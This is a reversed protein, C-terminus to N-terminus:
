VKINTVAKILFFAVATGIVFIILLLLGVGRFLPDIFGENMSNMMLVIVIPMVPILVSVYRQEATLTKVEQAVLKRDELTDAMEQMVESLHGGTRRQILLIAAFIRFDRTPIREKMELLAREFTVGLQLQRSMRGFEEKAPYSMEKAVLHMGQSLTLGARLSNGLMRCVDPLQQNLKTLQKNRRLLFLMKQAIFVALVASLINYPSKIDFFANLTYGIGMVGILLFSYFESPEIPLNARRLKRRVDKAFDTEDFREGLGALFSRREQSPGFIEEARNRWEKKKTRYGLYHYIGWVAFLTAFSSIIPILM